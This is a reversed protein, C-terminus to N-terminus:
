CMHAVCVCCVKPPAPLAAAHGNGKEFSDVANNTNTLLAPQHTEEQVQQQEVVATVNNSKEVAIKDAQQLRSSVETHAQKYAYVNTREGEARTSSSPQLQAESDVREERMQGSGDKQRKQQLMMQIDISAGGIAKNPARGKVSISQRNSPFVGSADKSYSRSPASAAVFTRPPVRDVSKSLGSTDDGYTAESLPRSSLVASVEGMPIVHPINPVNDSSKDGSSIHSYIPNQSLLAKLDSLNTGEFAEM